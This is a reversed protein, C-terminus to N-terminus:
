EKFRREHAAVHEPFLTEYEPYPIGLVAVEMDDLEGQIYVGGSSEISVGSATRICLASDAANGPGYRDNPIFKGFAVGLPPDGFELDSSGILEEGRYIDFRAM